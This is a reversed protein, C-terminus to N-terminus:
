LYFIVPAPHHEARSHRRCAVLYTQAERVLGWLIRSLGRGLGTSAIVAYENPLVERPDEAANYCLWADRLDATSLHAPPVCVNPTHRRLDALLEPVDTPMERPERERDAKSRHVRAKAPELETHNLASVRKRKKKPRAAPKTARQPTTPTSPPAPGRLALKAERIQYQLESLREKIRHPSCFVHM